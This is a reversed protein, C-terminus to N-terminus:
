PKVATHGSPGIYTTGSPLKDFEAKTSIKVAAKIPGGAAEDGWRSKLKEVQQFIGGPTILAPDVSNVKAEDQKEKISSLYAEHRIQQQSRFEAMISKVVEPTLLSGQKVKNYAQAIKGMPGPSNEMQHYEADTPKSNTEAQALQNLLSVDGIQDKGFRASNIIGEAQVYAKSQKEYDARIPKWDQMTGLRMKADVYGGQAPNFVTAQQEKTHDDMWKQAAVSYARVDAPMYQSAKQLAMGKEGSLPDWGKSSDKPTMFKDLTDKMSIFKKDADATRMEETQFGPPLVQEGTQENFSGTGNVGKIQSFHNPAKQFLEKHAEYVRAAEDAFGAQALGTIATKMGEPTTIDQGQASRQFAAIAKDKRQRDAREEGMKQMTQRIQLGSQFGQGLADGSSNLISPDVLGM